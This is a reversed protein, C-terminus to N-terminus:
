DEVSHILTLNIHIHQVGYLTVRQGSSPSVSSVDALLSLMDVDVERQYMRHKVAIRSKCDIGLSDFLLSTAAM